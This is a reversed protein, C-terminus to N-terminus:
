LVTPFFYSCPFFYPFIDSRILWSHCSHFSTGHGSDIRAQKRAACEEIRLKPMGTAVAKAMGGLEEVQLM